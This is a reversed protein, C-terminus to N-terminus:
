KLVVQDIRLEIDRSLPFVAMKLSYLNPLRVFCVKPPWFFLLDIVLYNIMLWDWTLFFFFFFVTLDLWDKHFIEGTTDTLALKWKTTPFCLSIDKDTLSERYVSRTCAQGDLVLMLKFGCNVTWAMLRLCVCGLAFCSFRSSAQFPVPTQRQCSCSIFPSHIEQRRM